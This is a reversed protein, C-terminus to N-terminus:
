LNTDLEYVYSSPTKSTKLGFLNVNLWAHHTGDDVSSITAPFAYDTKVVDIGNKTGFCGSLAEETFRFYDYPYAHIPFTSHTQVFVAGGYKLVKSIEFAALHPYKFHEFSSCSIIIDYQKTGIIESLNHIDAIFDVDEGHEIDTGSFEIAHPVWEKHMTSRDEQSRKVGLELVRPSTMSKCHSLFLDLACPSKTGDYTNMNAYQMKSM